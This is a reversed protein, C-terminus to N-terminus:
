HLSLYKFLNANSTLSSGTTKPTYAKKLEEETAVEPQNAKKELEEAAIKERVEQEFILREEETMEM